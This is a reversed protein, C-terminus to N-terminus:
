PQSSTVEPSLNQSPSTRSIAMGQREVLTQTNEEFGLCFGCDTNYDIDIVTNQTCDGRKPLSLVVHVLTTNSQSGLFDRYRSTQVFPQHAIAHFKIVLNTDSNM